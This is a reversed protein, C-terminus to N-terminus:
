KDSVENLIADIVSTFDSALFDMAISDDLGMLPAVDSGGEMRLAMLVARAIEMATNPGPFVPYGKEDEGVQVGSAARAAKELMTMM